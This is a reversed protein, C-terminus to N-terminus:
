YKKWIFYYFKEQLILAVFWLLINLSAICINKYYRVQFHIKELLKVLSVDCIVTNSQHKVKPFVHFHCHSESFTTRHLIKRWEQCTNIIWEGGGRRIQHCLKCIAHLKLHLKFNGNQSLKWDGCFSFGCSLGNKCRCLVDLQIQWWSHVRFWQACEALIKNYYNGTSM